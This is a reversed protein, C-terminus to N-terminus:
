LAFNAGTMWGVSSTPTCAIVVAVSSASAPYRRLDAASGAIMLTTWWVVLLGEGALEVGPQLLERWPMKAHRSFAEEMGAVVGPVAISGPGHLNRDDKM